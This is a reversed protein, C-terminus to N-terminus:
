DPAGHQQTNIHVLGACCLSGAVFASSPTTAVVLPHSTQLLSNFLVICSLTHAYRGHLVRRPYAGHLQTRTWFSSPGHKIFASTVPSHERQQTDHPLRHLCHSQVWPSFYASCSLLPLISCMRVGTPHVGDGICERCFICGPVYLLIVYTQQKSDASLCPSCPRLLSMCCQPHCSRAGCSHGGPSLCQSAFALLLSAAHGNPSRPRQSDRFV